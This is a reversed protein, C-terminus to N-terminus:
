RKRPRYNVSIGISIYFASCPLESSLVEVWLLCLRCGEVDSLGLVPYYMCICHLLPFVFPFLSFLPSCLIHPHSFLARGSEQRPLCHCTSYLTTPPTYLLLVFYGDTSFPGKGYYEERHTTRGMGRVNCLSINYEHFVARPNRGTGPGPRRRGSATTAPAQVYLYLCSQHIRRGVTHIGVFIHRHPRTPSSSLHTHQPPPPANYLTEWNHISGRVGQQGDWSWGM